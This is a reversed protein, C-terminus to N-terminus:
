SADAEVDARSDTGSSTEPGALAAPTRLSTADGRAIIRAPVGVALCGDPVDRIVVANAGIAVDNGIRIPGLVKAGAGIDVRDGIVPAGRVGRHRLGVTVGNRVVCDDGFVADGSIIIGGFHEILFRRGVRAECPLDIGTMIQ